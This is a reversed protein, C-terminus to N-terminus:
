DDLDDIEPPFLPEGFFLGDGESDELSIERDEKETTKARIEVPKNKIRQWHLEGILIGAVVTFCIIVGFGDGASM